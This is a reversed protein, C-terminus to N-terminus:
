FIDVYFDLKFFIEVINIYFVKCLMFIDTFNTDFELQKMRPRNESHLLDLKHNLCDGVIYVHIYITYCNLDYATM